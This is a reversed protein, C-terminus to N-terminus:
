SWAAPDAGATGPPLSWDAPGASGPSGFRVPPLVYRLRGLPGDAETLWPSPDFDGAPVPAGGPEVTPESPLDHLLWHATRALAVRVVRSGATGARQESLARLLGAALLYGTAHDLAQVPLAGPAPDTGAEDPVGAEIRSIGTAAQVLSDFGRRRQWPGATGWASLQGVVLGPRRDALSEPALGFRDLAGPRYGTVVLHAGSLLEEFTAQGSRSSLDLLTSRKGLDGDAHADVLEPRDPADIRLVEAGLLALTRTAVPGAITRTLDLVRLGALGGPGAQAGPDLPAATDLRASGVLPLRAVAACQPHAAWEDPTRVAVALGGAGIVTEEVEHASREALEAALRGVTAEDEAPGPDPLGLAALLRARHHPYNAHTRVWGDAVPWFRSLPAFNVPPRGDTRVLRDSLFAAAVAGDDTEVPPVLESGTRVALFEAAALACVSVTSSALDLVPLASPLLGPRRERRIRGPLAPDGGLAAWAQAPGPQAPSGGPVVPGSAAGM